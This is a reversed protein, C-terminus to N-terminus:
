QHLLFDWFGSAIQPPYYYTFLGENIGIEGTKSILCIGKVNETAQAVQPLLFAVTHIDLKTKGNGEVWALPTTEYLFCLFSDSGQAYTRDTTTKLQNPSQAMFLADDSATDPTDAATKWWNPAVAAFIKQYEASDPLYETTSSSTRVEIRDPLPLEKQTYDENGGKPQSCGTLMLLVLLFVLIRKM